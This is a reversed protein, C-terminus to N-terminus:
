RAYQRSPWMLMYESRMTKPTVSIRLVSKPTMTTTRAAADINKV